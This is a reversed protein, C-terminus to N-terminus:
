FRCSADRLMDNSDPFQWWTCDEAVEDVSQRSVACTQDTSQRKQLADTHRKVADTSVRTSIRDSTGAQKANESGALDVLNLHSMWLPPKNVLGRTGGLVTHCHPLHCAVSQMTKHNM